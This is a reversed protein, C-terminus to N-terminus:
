APPADAGPAVRVSDPDLAGLCHKELHRQYDELARPIDPSKFIDFVGFDLLIDFGTFKDNSTIHLFLDATGKGGYMAGSPNDFAERPANWTASIMFKRGQM